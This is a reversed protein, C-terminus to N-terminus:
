ATTSISTATARFKDEATRWLEVQQLIETVTEVVESRARVQEPDDRVGEWLVAISVEIQAPYIGLSDGFM